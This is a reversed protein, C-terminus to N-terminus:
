TKQARLAVMIYPLHRNMIKELRDIVQTSSNCFNDFIVFHNGAETLSAATHSCFYRAGGTSLLNM